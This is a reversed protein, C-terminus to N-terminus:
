RPERYLAPWLKNVRLATVFHARWSREAITSAEGRLRNAVYEDIERGNCRRLKACVDELPELSM